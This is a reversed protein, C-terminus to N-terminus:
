PRPRRHDPIAREVDIVFGLALKIKRVHKARDIRDVHTGSTWRRETGSCPVGKDAGCARCSALVVAPHVKMWLGKPIDKSPHPVFATMAGVLPRVIIGVTRKM